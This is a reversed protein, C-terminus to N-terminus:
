AKREEISLRRSSLARALRRDIEVEDQNVNISHGLKKQAKKEKKMETEGKHALDGTIPLVAPALTLIQM